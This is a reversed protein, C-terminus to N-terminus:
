VACALTLLLDDHEGDRHGYTDHLVATIRTQFGNLERELAPYPGRAPCTALHAPTRGAAPAPCASASLMHGASTSVRTM